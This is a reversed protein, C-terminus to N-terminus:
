SLAPVRQWCVGLGWQLLVQKLLYIIGACLLAGMALSCCIAGWAEQDKCSGMRVPQRRAVPATSHKCCTCVAACLSVDHSGLLSYPM